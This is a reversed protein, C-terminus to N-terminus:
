ANRSRALQHRYEEPTNLNVAWASDTLGWRCVDLEDLLRALKRIGHNLAERVPDRCRRRWVGCLPPHSVGPADPLVCDADQNRAAELLGALMEATLNPLDCAVILNFEAATSSLATEIGALPGLGPRLDALVPRGLFLYREPPGILTVSGAASEVQRAIWDVLVTDHYPLLAKDWGMRSSRGGALVFGAALMRKIRALRAPLPGFTLEWTFNGCSVM